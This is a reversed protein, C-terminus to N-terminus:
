RKRTWLFDFLGPAAPESLAGRAVATVPYDLTVVDGFERLMALIQPMQSAAGVPYIAKVGNPYAMGAEKHVDRLLHRAGDLYTRWKPEIESRFAELEVTHGGTTVAITAVPAHSLAETARQLSHSFEYREVMNHTNQLQDWLHPYTQELKKKAWSSVAWRISDANLRPKTDTAIAAFNGTPQLELITATIGSAGCDCVAIREGPRLRHHFAFHRAAAVPEPMFRVAGPALGLTTAAHKLRQMREEDWDYPHTIVVGSPPTDNHVAAAHQLVSQMVIAAPWHPPLAQGFVYHSKASLVEKASPIFGVPHSVKRAVAEHGAIFRNPYDWFVSSPMAPGDHGLWLTEAGGREAYAHAATTTATGLDISLTWENAM